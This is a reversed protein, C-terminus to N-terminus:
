KIDANNECEKDIIKSLKTTIDICRFSCDIFDHIYSLISLGLEKQLWEAFEAVVADPYQREELNNYVDLIIAKLLLYIAYVEELYRDSLGYAKMIDEFVRITGCGVPVIKFYFDTCKTNRLIYMKFYDYDERLLRYGNYYEAMGIANKDLGIIDKINM